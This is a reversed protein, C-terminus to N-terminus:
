AWRPKGRAYNGFSTLVQHATEREAEGLKSLQYFLDALAILERQPNEPAAAGADAEGLLSRFVQDLGGLSAPGIMRELCHMLGLGLLDYQQSQHIAIAAQRAFLGLLEMDQMGFSPANIKDLVEIVGIVREGYLLPMALISQPLYGTREAASQAFRPDQRVNSIALPEGTLAVYGAIGQNVPVRMGVVSEHGAGYSVVFVLYQQDQDVLAISAAAAGFIRAAAEVITGLLEDSSGPLITRGAAQFARVLQRLQDLVREDQGEATSNTNM